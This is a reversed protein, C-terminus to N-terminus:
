RKKLKKNKNWKNGGKNDKQNSSNEKFYDSFNNNKYQPTQIPFM